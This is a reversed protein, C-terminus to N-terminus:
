QPAAGTNGVYPYLSELLHELTARQTADPHLMACIVQAVHPPTGAAILARPDRPQTNHANRVEGISRGLFPQTGALIEWCMVAVCYSDSYEMASKLGGHWQEPPSYHSKGLMGPDTSQDPYADGLAVVDSAGISKFVGKLRAAGFDIIRIHLTGNQDYHIMVNEPSLDRHLINNQHMVYIANALTYVMGLGYQWGLHQRKLLSRLTEMWDLAEMSYWPNQTTPHSCKYAYPVLGTPSLEKQIFYEDTFRKRISQDTMAGKLIKVAVRQHNKEDSTDICLYCDAIGGGGLYGQPVLFPFQWPYDEPWGPFQVSTTTHDSKRKSAAVTYRTRTVLGRIILLILLGGIVSMVIWVWTPIPRDVAIQRCFNISRQANTESGGITARFPVHDWTNPHQGCTGELILQGTKETKFSVQKNQITSRAITRNGAILRIETNQWCEGEALVTITRQVTAPINWSNGKGNFFYRVTRDAVSPHYAILNYNGTDPLAVQWSTQGRPLKGNINKLEQESGAAWVRITGAEWEQPYNIHLTRDAHACFLCALFLGPMILFHKM